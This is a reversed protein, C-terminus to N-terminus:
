SSKLITSFLGMVTDVKDKIIRSTKCEKFYGWGSTPDEDAIENDEEEDPEPSVAEKIPSPSLAQWSDLIDHITDQGSTFEEQIKNIRGLISASAKNV